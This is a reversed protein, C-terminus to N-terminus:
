GRGTRESVRAAMEEQFTLEKGAVQTGSSYRDVAWYKRAPGTIGFRSASTHLAFHSEIDEM